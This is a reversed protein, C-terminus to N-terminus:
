TQKPSFCWASRVHPAPGGHVRLQGNAHELTALSEFDPSYYTVTWGEIDGDEFHDVFRQGQALKFYQSYDTTRVAMQMVGAGRAVPDLCPIWPGDPNAASLVIYNTASVPWSIVAAAREIDMEPGNTQAPLSLALAPLPLVMGAPPSNQM